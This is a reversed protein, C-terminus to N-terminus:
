GVGTYECQGFFSDYFTTNETKHRWCALCKYRNVTLQGCACTNLKDTKKIYYADKGNSLRVLDLSKDLSIGIDEAKAKQAKTKKANCTPCLRRNWARGAANYFLTRKGDRYKPFLRETSDCERCTKQWSM